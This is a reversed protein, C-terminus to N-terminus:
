SCCDNQKLSYSLWFLCYYRQLNINRLLGIQNPWQVFCVQQGFLQFHNSYKGIFLPVRDGLMHRHDNYHLWLSRPPTEFWRRRSQESLRKNLHLDFFIDFNRTVPRQSPFEGSVSSNGVCLTLLASFTEMKHRRQIQVRHSSEHLLREVRYATLPYTFLVYNLWIFGDRTNQLFNQEGLFIALLARNTSTDTISPKLRAFLIKSHRWYIVPTVVAFGCQYRYSTLTVEIPLCHKWLEGNYPFIYQWKTFSPVKRPKRM